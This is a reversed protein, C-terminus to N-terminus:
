VSYHAKMTFQLLYYFTSKSPSNPTWHKVMIVCIAVGIGSTGHVIWNHQKTDVVESM